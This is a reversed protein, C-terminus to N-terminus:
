TGNTAEEINDAVKRMAEPIEDASARFKGLEDDTYTVKYKCNERATNINHYNKVVEINLKKTIM